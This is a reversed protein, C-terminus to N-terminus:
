PRVWSVPAAGSGPEARLADSILDRMREKYLGRRFREAHERLRAPDFGDPDEEFRLIADKLAQVTEDHFLIGTASCLDHGPVKGRGVEGRPIVTELSGGRGLAIVPCGAANAELAVIGFDEVATHVVARASAYADCLEADALRGVLQVTPGARDRLRRELPGTGVITLRRRLANFADIALEVGKSPVLASVMLYGDRSKGMPRFLDTDVPPHVVEAERGYYRRIRRAVFASNAVFRDVRAASATDWQRLYTLFVPALTTGIIGQRPFYRPWLDWIYRMPTHVYSVHVAHPAAIAGKAVCHSSSVVLDYAMLDFAEVAMPMLPLYYRYWRKAFPMGQLFSTEIRHKEIAESVTGARHVLTFIDADPFLECLVELCKEGGRMGTLWDHVLAVKM